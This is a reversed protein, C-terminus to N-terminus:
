PKKMPVASLLLNGDADALAMQNLIPDERAQDVFSRMAPTIAGLTEYERKLFLLANDSTKLARRVHEEFARVLAGNELQARDLDEAREAELHFAIGLWTAAVLAAGFLAVLLCAASGRVLPSLFRDRMPSM